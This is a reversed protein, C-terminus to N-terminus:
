AMRRRRLYGGMGVLGMVLGAMTVPEPVALGATEDNSLVTWDGVFLPENGPTNSPNNSVTDLETRWDADAPTGAPFVGSYFGGILPPDGGGAAINLLGIDGYGGYVPHTATDTFIRASGADGGPTIGPTFVSELTTAAPAGIFLGIAAGDLSMSHTATAVGGDLGVGTYSDNDIRGGSGLTPDFTGVPQTWLDLHGGTAWIMTTGNPLFTVTTDTFDFFFAVLEENADGHNWRPLTVVPHPNIINSGSPGALGPIVQQVRIAGYSEHAGIAGLAPLEIMLPSGVPLTVAVLPPAADPVGNGDLDPLYVSGSEWNTVKFVLSDTQTPDRTWTVGMAPVVLAMVLAGVMCTKLVRM